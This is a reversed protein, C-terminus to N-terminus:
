RGEETEELSRQAEGSSRCVACQVVERQNADVSHPVRVFGNGNCAGCITVETM